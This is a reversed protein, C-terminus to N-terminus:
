CFPTLLLIRCRKRWFFVNREEKKGIPHLTSAIQQQSRESEDKENGCVNGSTVVSTYQMIYLMRYSTLLTSRECRLMQSGHLVACCLVACCLM